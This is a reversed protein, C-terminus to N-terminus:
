GRVAVRDLLALLPGGSVRRVPRHALRAADAQLHLAGDARRPRRARLHELLRAEPAPQAQGPASAAQAAALLLRGDRPRGPRRATPVAPRAVRREESPLRSLPPRSHRAAVHPRLALEPGRRALRGAPELPPVAGRRAPEPLVTRRPERLPRVGRLDAPREHD